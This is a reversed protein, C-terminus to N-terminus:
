NLVTLIIPKLYAYFPACLPTSLAVLAIALGAAVGQVAHGVRRHYACFSGALIGIILGITWPAVFANIHPRLHPTPQLDRVTSPFAPM